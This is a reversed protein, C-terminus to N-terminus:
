GGAFFLQGGPSGGDRRLVRAMAAVPLLALVYIYIQLAGPGLVGGAHLLIGCNVLGHYLSAIVLAAGGALIGRDYAWYFVLGTIAGHFGTAALRELLAPALSGWLSWPGAGAELLFGAASSIVLWAEMAGCGLGAWAGARWRLGRSRWLLLVPLGALVKAPEQILGSLAAAPLGTILVNATTFSAMAWREALQQLPVQVLSISPIFLLAGALFAVLAGSGSARYRPWRGSARACCHRGGADQGGSVAGGPDELPLASPRRGSPGRGPASLRRPAGRFFAAAAIWFAAMVAAAAFGRWELTRFLASPDSWDM